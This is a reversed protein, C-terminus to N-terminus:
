GLGDGLDVLTRHYQAHHPQISFLGKFRISAGYHRDPTPMQCSLDSWPPCLLRPVACDARRCSSPIALALALPLPAVGAGPEPQRGRKGYLM